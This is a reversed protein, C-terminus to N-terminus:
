HDKGGKGNDDKGKGKDKKEKPADPAVPEGTLAASAAPGIPNAGTGDRPAIAAVVLVGFVLAVLAVLPAIGRRVRRPAGSRRDRVPLPRVAAATATSGVTPSAGAWMAGIGAAPAAVAIAETRAEPVVPAVPEVAARLEEAFAQVSAQRASPDPSLATRVAADLAAPVDEIPPPQVLQAEVLAVPTTAPFAPRGALMEYTLAGLAFLDSAPTAPEGRLQEPAIYRLTGVLMGTGTAATEDGTRHAIGFDTLRARGDGDLLINGPSVDRHVLGEEHAATLAAAVDSAIAVAEAQAVRGGSRLRDALSSGHVYELIIAADDRAIQLDRVRVISPHRLSRLARFERVLRRRGSETGFVIPHLRKLAVEDGTREDIARWVEASGGSGAPELLRYRGFLVTKSM